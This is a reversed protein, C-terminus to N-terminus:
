QLFGRAKFSKLFAYDKLEEFLKEREQQDLPGLPLRFSNEMFGLASVVTKIPIPNPHSFMLKCLSALKYAIKQAYIYDGNKVSRYLTLMETAAIQSVVSIVGDGGLALFPLFTADEGSLMLFDPRASKVKGMLITLREMDTNADKLGIINEHALALDVVTQPHLDIGTRGPVNYMILPLTSSKAIASFHEFLGRQTPKNYYPVVQLTADAGVKAMELHAFIADKTCNSGAGAIVTLGADKVAKVLVKKEDIAIAPSEGTSGAVVIGNIGDAKQWALLESYAGVDLSGDQNFPTVLASFVGGFRNTDM